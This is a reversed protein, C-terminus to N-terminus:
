RFIIRNSQKEKKSFIKNEKDYYTQGSNKNLANKLNNFNKEFIIQMTKNMNVRRQPLTKLGGKLNKDALVKV